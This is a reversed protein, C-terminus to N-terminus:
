AATKHPPPSWYLKLALQRAADFDADGANIIEDQGEEGPSPVANARKAFPEFDGEPDGDRPSRKLLRPAQKKPRRHEFRRM